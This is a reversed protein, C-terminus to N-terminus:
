KSLTLGEALWNVTGGELDYIKAFGMEELKDATNASRKGIKCYLYVAKNKDLKKLQADFDSDSYNMNVANEIHGSAFEEPTRVDILLIDKNISNLDAPSILSISAQDVNTDNSKSNEKQGCAIFSILVFTLLFIRSYNTKM